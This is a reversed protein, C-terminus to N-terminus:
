PRHEVYPTLPIISGNKIGEIIDRVDDKTEIRKKDEIKKPPM